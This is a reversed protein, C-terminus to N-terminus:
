TQLKYAGQYQPAINFGKPFILSRIDIIYYIAYQMIDYILNFMIKNLYSFDMGSLITFVDKTWPLYKGIFLCNKFRISGLNSDAFSNRPLFDIKLPRVHPLKRDRKHNILNLDDWHREHKGARGEHATVGESKWACVDAPKLFLINM